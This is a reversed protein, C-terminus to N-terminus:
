PLASVFIGGGYTGAFINNGVVLFYSVVLNTLGSNEATWSAGNNTSLFVGGNTGAFVNGGSTAVYGISDNTLGNDVPNWNTGNNTSLFLGGYTGAFINNGSVALCWIIKNTLGSNAAAWSSGNNTSLFVGGYTGALVNSGSTALYWVSDNTLGNNVPSWNTGGNTTVFVGNGGTGAFVNNGSSALSWIEGNPLGNDTLTWTAGSNTSLFVQDYDAAFVNTGNVVLSFITGFNWTTDNRKFTCATWSTGNNASLYLGSDTGALINKGAAVLSYDWLCGLGTNVAKWQCLLVKLVAGNSTANPLTGNSITVTYTGANAAQVNSILYSSSTAGWIATGNQSWQYSLPPTGTATVSFTLSQGVTASDSKPQATISPAVAPAPHVTLIASDSVVNGVSNTVVVAYSGSDTIAASGITLAPSTDGPIIVGNREWQYSLPTTGTALVSFTVSQAAVISQSQPQTTIHPTGLPTATIVNSLGSEAEGNAACVAFAYLTGTALGTVQKPSTVGTQKTGTLTDVTTGSEYFLTYSTAGNVPQWNLTVCGEGAAASSLVPVPPPFDIVQLNNSPVQTCLCLASVILSLCSSRGTSRM